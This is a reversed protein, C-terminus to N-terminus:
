YLYASSFAFPVLLSWTLVNKTFLQTDFHHFLDRLGVIITRNISDFRRTATFLM